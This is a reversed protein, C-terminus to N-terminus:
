GSSFGGGFLQGVLLVELGAGTHLGGFVLARIGMGGRSRTVGSDSERTM